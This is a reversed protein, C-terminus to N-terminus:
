TLEDSGPRVKKYGQFADCLVNKSMKLPYSFLNDQKNESKM